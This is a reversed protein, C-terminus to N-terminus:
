KWVRQPVEAGGRRRLATASQARTPPGSPSGPGRGTPGGTKRRRRRAKFSALFYHSYMLVHVFSNVLAALYADGNVDFRLFMATVLTISVHHYLHLVTLQRFSKRLVFFLTDGYELFKQAYYARSSLPIRTLPTDPRRSPLDSCCTSACWIVVSFEVGAPSTDPKNCVFGFSGSLKYKM